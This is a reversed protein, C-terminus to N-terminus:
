PYVTVNGYNSVQISEAPMGSKTLTISQAGVTASVSGGPRFQLTTDANITVGSGSIPVPLGVNTFAAACVGGAAPLKGSVQYTSTAKSFAVAYPCGHFIAQYRTAQIAGSVSAVSSRFNFYRVASLMQPITVAALIFGIAITVVLELTTFGRARAAKKGLPRIRVQQLKGRIM